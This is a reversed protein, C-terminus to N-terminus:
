NSSRSSGQTEPENVKGKKKHWSISMIGALLGGIAGLYLGGSTGSFSVIALLMTTAGLLKNRAPFLVLLGGAAIMFAGSLTGIVIEILDVTSQDGVGFYGKVAILGIALILGGSAVTLISSDYPRSNAGRM